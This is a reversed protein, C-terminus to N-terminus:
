PQLRNKPKNIKDFMIGIAISSVTVMVSIQWYKLIMYAIFLALAIFSAITALVISISVTHSFGLLLLSVVLIIILTGIM